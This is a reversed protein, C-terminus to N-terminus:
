FIHLDFQGFVNLQITLKLSYLLLTTIPLEFCIVFICKIILRISSIYIDM